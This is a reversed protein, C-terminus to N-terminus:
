TESLPEDSPIPMRKWYFTLDFLMLTLYITCCITPCIDVYPFSAHSCLTPSMTIPCCFPIITLCRVQTGVQGRRHGEIRRRPLTQYRRGLLYGSGVSAPVRPEHCRFIVLNHIMIKVFIIQETYKGSETAALIAAEAKKVVPLM